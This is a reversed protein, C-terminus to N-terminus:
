SAKVPQVPEIGGGSSVSLFWSEALVQVGDFGMYFRPPREEPYDM